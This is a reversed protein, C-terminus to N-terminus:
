YEIKPEFVGSYSGSLTQGDKFTISFQISYKRSAKDIEKTTITGSKVNGFAAESDGYGQMTTLSYNFVWAGVVPITYTSGMANLPISLYIGDNSAPMGTPHFFFNHSKSSSSYEYRDVTFSKDNHKFGAAVQTDEVSNKKCSVAIISILLIAFLKKM